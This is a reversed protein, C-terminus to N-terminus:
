EDDDTDIDDLDVVKAKPKKVEGEAAQKGIRGNRKDDNYKVGHKDLKVTLFRMINDNRKLGLEFKDVWEASECTFEICYYVGTARKNIEYALQRLGMEDVATISCGNGELQTRVTEATSKVEDSSLIPDVIFTLEYHRM